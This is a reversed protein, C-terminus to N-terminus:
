PNEKTSLVLTALRRRFVFFLGLLIFPISLWQGLNLTMEAESPVQDMKVFEILFRTVFVGIFVWGLYFGNHVTHQKRMFYWFAIVFTLVYALAEYIPTPHRPINDIREFVFGWPLSTPIGVIESNMLNGMRVFAGALVVVVAFMDLAWLVPKKRLWSNFWLTGLLGIVWGHSSFGQLGTFHANQGLKGTWPKIIEIPHHIYYDFEYFLCHGLRGGILVGLIL